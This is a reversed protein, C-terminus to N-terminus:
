GNALIEKILRRCDDLFRERDANNELIYDCNERYYCDPKQARIRKQAAERSIGDRATIREIRKEEESVVAVTALCREGLGGAILEAADVAALTFGQMAFARLRQAVAERVYRHTIANLRLLADPDSFVIAGLVKRDVAGDSVASPFSNGLEDLMPRCSQLLEHYLADCDIVCAGSEELAQLATTKGAGSGGTVGIVKVADALIDAIEEEPLAGQRLIRFPKVSMDIITSETGIGCPGGDIVCDIQGDFYDLVQQATKPSPRGSPNASPAALPLTCEQLLELTLPHDPCRLGVTKGGALVIPPIEPRAKVVITLPGPWYQEALTRAQEPVETGYRELASPDPVMLSLPKVAPRGKVEYIQRVSAENLGNGALGYVTETPVAVLGGNQIVDAAAPIDKTIIRTQM